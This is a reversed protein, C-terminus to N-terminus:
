IVSMKKRSYQLGVLLHPKMSVGYAKLALVSRYPM